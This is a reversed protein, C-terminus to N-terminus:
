QQALIEGSVCYATDVGHIRLADVLSEGGTRSRVVQNM